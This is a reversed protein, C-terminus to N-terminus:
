HCEPGAETRTATVGPTWRTAAPGPTLRASAQAPGAQWRTAAPGPAWRTAYPGAYATIDRGAGAASGTLNMQGSALLTLLATVQKFGTLSMAAQALNTLLGVRTLAVALTMSGQATNGFLGVRTVAPGTLTMQALAAMAFLGAITDVGALAMSATAKNALTGPETV